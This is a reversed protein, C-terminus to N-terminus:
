QDTKKKHKTILDVSHHFSTGSTDGIRRAVAADLKDDIMHTPAHRFSIEDVIQCLNRVAQIQATRMQGGGDVPSHFSHYTRIRSKM